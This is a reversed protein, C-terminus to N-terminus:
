IHILSLSDAAKENFRNLVEAIRTGTPYTESLFDFGYCMHLRNTGKTYEAQIDLGQQDDGVEGVATIDPFEDMVRRLKELFAINEPQSKSYLHNQWTYPNVQPAIESVKTRDVPPNDRLQADHVYFNVTDLRFGDVGRELWYRAVDLLADQVDMNHFNLDPQERLFNHLYYQM